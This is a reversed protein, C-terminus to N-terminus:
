ISVQRLMVTGMRRLGQTGMIIPEIMQDVVLTDDPSFDAINLPTAAIGPDYASGEVNVITLGISSLTEELRKLYFRLQSQYRAAEGADLKNLVRAFSRSFRWSEVVIDILPTEIVDPNPDLVGTM